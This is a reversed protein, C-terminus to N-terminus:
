KQEWLKNIAKSFNDGGPIIIKDGVTLGSISLLLSEDLYKPGTIKIGALTYDKPTKSTALNVLEPDVSMGGPHTTDTVQAKATTINLLCYTTLLFVCFLSRRQM